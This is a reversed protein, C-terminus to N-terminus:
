PTYIYANKPSSSDVKGRVEAHTLWSCFYWFRHFKLLTFSKWCSFLYKDELLALIGIATLILKRQILNNGCLVQYM